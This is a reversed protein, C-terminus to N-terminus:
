APPAVDECQTLQRRRQAGSLGFLFGVVLLAVQWCTIFLSLLHVPVIQVGTQPGRPQFLPQIRIKINRNIKRFNLRVFVKLPPRCQVSTKRAIQAVQYATEPLSQSHGQCAWLVYLLDVGDLSHWNFGPM